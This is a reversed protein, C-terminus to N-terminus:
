FLRIIDIPNKIFFKDNIEKLSDVDLKDILFTNDKSEIMSTQYRGIMRFLDVMNYRIELNNVTGYVDQYCPKCDAHLVDKVADPFNYGFKILSNNVNSLIKQDAVKPTYYSRLNMDPFMTYAIYMSLMQPPLLTEPVGKCRNVSQKWLYMVNSENVCFSTDESNTKRPRFICTEPYITVLQWSLLDKTIVINPVIKTPNITQVKPILNGIMISPAVTGTIFYVGPIYQCLMKLLTNNYSIISDRQPNPMVSDSACSQEVRITNSTFVIFINTNVDHRTKYYSRMHACLNLINSTFLTECGILDRNYLPKLMSYMDIFINVTDSSSNKFQTLTLEKLKDYRIYYSYLIAEIPIQDTKGKNTMMDQGSMHMFPTNAM